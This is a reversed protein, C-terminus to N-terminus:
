PKGVDLCVISEDDRLYLLGNALAPAQRTTDLVVKRGIEQFGEPTARVVVLEGKM